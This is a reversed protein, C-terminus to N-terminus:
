FRAGTFYSFIFKEALLLVISVSSASCFTGWVLLRADPMYHGYELTLLFFFAFFGYSLLSRFMKLYLWSLSKIHEVGHSHKTVFTQQPISFVPSSWCHISEIVTIEHLEKPFFLLQTQLQQRKTQLKEAEKQLRLPVWSLVWFVELLTISDSLTKINVIQGLDELTQMVLPTCWWQLALDSLDTKMADSRGPIPYSSYRQSSSGCFSHSAKHIGRPHPLVLLFLWLHHNSGMVFHYFRLHDQFIPVTHTFVCGKHQCISLLIQM